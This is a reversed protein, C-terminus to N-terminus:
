AAHAAVGHPVTRRRCYADAVIRTLAATAGPAPPLHSALLLTPDLQAIEALSAGLADPDALSLWPADVSSWGIVGDRLTAPAIGDVDRAPAPLLAGFCDASFLVRNKPDFFGLTEPADYYPPRLARIRRDGIDLTDGAELLRIGGTHHGALGLKGLGLFNTVVTANPAAARLRALNGVHDADMHSLWIWAIEAPDIVSAVARFLPDGLAALGTDVLVPQQGALVFANVPLVGMGPVPLWSPIVTWDGILRQTESLCPLDNM